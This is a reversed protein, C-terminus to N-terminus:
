KPCITGETLKDIPAKLLASCEFIHSTSTEFHGHVLGIDRWNNNEDEFLLHLGDADKRVWLATVYIPIKFM